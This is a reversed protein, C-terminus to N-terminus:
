DMGFSKRLADKRKKKREVYKDSKRIENHGRALSAPRIEIEYANGDQSRVFVTFGDPMGRVDLIQEVFELKQLDKVIKM